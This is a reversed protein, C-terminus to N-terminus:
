VEGTITIIHITRGKWVILNGRLHQRGGGTQKAKITGTPAAFGLAVRKAIEADRVVEAEAKTAVDATITYSFTM